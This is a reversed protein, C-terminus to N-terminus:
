TVPYLHQFYEPGPIFFRLDPLGEAGPGVETGAAMCEAGAAPLKTCEAGQVVQWAPTVPTPSWIHPQTRILSSSRTSTSPPETHVL